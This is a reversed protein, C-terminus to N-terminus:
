AGSVAVVGGSVGKGYEIDYKTGNKFRFVSDGEPEVYDVEGRADEQVLSEMKSSMLMLSTLESTLM